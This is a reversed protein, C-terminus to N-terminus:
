QLFQPYRATHTVHEEHTHKTWFGSTLWRAPPEKQSIKKRPQTRLTATRAPHLSKKKKKEYHVLILPQYKENPPMRLCKMFVLSNMKM